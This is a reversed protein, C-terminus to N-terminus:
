ENKSMKEFILIATVGSKILFFSIPIVPSSGAVEVDRIHRELWVSGCGSLNYHAVFIIYLVNLGSLMRCCKDM